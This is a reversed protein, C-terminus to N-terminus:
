KESLAGQQGLSIMLVFTSPDELCVRGSHLNGSVLSLTVKSVLVEEVMGEPRETKELLSM